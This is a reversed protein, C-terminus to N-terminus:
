VKTIGTIVSNRRPQRCILNGLVFLAGIEGYQNTPKLFERMQIFSPVQSSNDSYAGDTVELSSKVQRLEPDQLSDFELYHENLFYMHGSPCKDDAVCPIGRVNIANFGIVGKIESASVSTGTPTKGSVRNYGQIATATYQAQIASAAIMLKEVLSWAAKTTYIINPSEQGSGAASAVDFAGTILDLSLVGGTAAIVNGKTAPYTARTLGAYSASGTGDDVILKLGDFDKGSNGTGDGYLATGVGEAMSTKAEDMLNGLLRIAQADSGSNVAREVGSVVVSQAYSKPYWTMSRTNDTQSVNFTDMGSFSGGSTSNAIRIPQKISAGHWRKAMAATRATFINSNNVGDVVKPIIKDYTVSTVRESFAM